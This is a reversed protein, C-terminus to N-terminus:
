KAKLRVGPQGHNLLEVGAADLADMVAKITDLGSTLTEAGRKEMASITNPSINALEALAIQDLGALARAAKLQNGTTLLASGKM